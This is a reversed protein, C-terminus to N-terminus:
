HRLRNYLKGNWYHRLRLYSELWRLAPRPQGNSLLLYSHPLWTHGQLFDWFTIGAVHRDLWFIPFQRQMEALQRASSKWNLDFESIYVPVGTSEIIRLCQRITRDSTHELGHAQCGVGDILRLSKLRRVLSAYIRATPPSNLINYDNLLLRTHPFDQRALRYCWIVWGWRTSGGPLGARYRPPHQLPENVVDILATRNAYRRAFAAFWKEVAVKANRRNVWRPQQEGWILNHEKILLHRRAALRYMRDLAQWHFVGKQPEVSGWKGANEPTLQKFISGFYPSDFGSWTTGVFRKLPPLHGFAPIAAVFGGVCALRWIAGRRGFMVSLELSGFDHL